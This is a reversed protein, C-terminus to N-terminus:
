LRDTKIRLKSIIKKADVGYISICKRLSGSLPCKETSPFNSLYRYFFAWSGAPNSGKGEQDPITATSCGM